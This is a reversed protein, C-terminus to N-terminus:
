DSKAAVGEIELRWEKRALQSVFLLTTAPRSDELFKDRVTRFVPLDEPDTMYVTLKVLDHRSMGASELVAYLNTWVIQCQLEFDDPIGGKHDQAIQGSIHIWRAGPQVEIGHSYSSVPAPISDPNHIKSM